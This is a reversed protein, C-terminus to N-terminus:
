IAVARPNDGECRPGARHPWLLLIRAAMVDATCLETEAVSRDPEIGAIAAILSM